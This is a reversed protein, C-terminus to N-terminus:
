DRLALELWARARLWDRHVTRVSIDLVRATEEETLGGFFRCEVVRALREEVQALGTMADDIALMTIAWEDSTATALDIPFTAPMMRKDARTRRAYDVLVRRMVRSAVALFHVRDTFTAQRQDVLRLWAENVLATPTLTHGDSERRLHRSAVTHLAQAVLPMLREMAEGDGSRWAVLWRTIEGTTEADFEIQTV